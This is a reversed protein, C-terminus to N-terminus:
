LGQENHIENVLKPTLMSLFETLSDAIKKHPECGVREVWVEGSNNNVSLIMDEEDTVAFFITIAQKLKQKMLVHGIINEQLRAFDEKSWPLLLSLEGEQCEAHIADGYACTFYTKIDPHFELELASEINEFSLDDVIKHPKWLMKQEDFEEELCPSPWDEDKDVSPFRAFEIQYQRTYEQLFSWLIESLDNNALKM